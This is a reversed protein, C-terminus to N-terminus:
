HPLKFRNISSSYGAFIGAGNNINGGVFDTGVLPNGSPNIIYNFFHRYYDRTVSRMEIIFEGREYKNDDYDFSGEFKLELEEGNFKEDSLIFSPDNPIKNIEILKNLAEINLLDNNVLTTDFVVTGDTLENEEILEQRFIIHYFNQDNIPDDIKVTLDFDITSVGSDDTFVTSGAQPDENLSVLAPISNTATIEDYGTVKITLLYEKGIEPMFDTTTYFSKDALEVLDLFAIFEGDDGNQLSVLANTICKAENEESRTDSEKVYVILDQNDSFTSQVVIQTDSDPEVVVECSSLFSIM